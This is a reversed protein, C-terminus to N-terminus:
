RSSIAAPLDGSSAWRMVTSVAPRVASKEPTVTAPAIAVSISIGCRKRYETPAAPAATPMREATLASKTTGANNDTNPGRMLASEIRREAFDTESSDSPQIRSARATM